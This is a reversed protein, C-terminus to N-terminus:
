RTPQLLDFAAAIVEEATIQMLGKETAAHRTHDKKSSAHRLVRSATGYPGNRAPDTPGFLAVVPRELAAALHLPGTDGAIVLSAHRTLAILQGISCPVVVAAGGSANVVANALIDGAFVANVLPVYGAQALAAAVAGYREAPWQKAGWGASPAILAFKRGEPAVRALLEDRWAESAQDAPLEIKTSTLREGVAAGLLECGQEIVHAASMPIKEGYLWRAPQERPDAPGAFKGGGAMWGIMSSRISGQMDVCLDFQEGRLQRRVAAISRLTELSIPRRKWQRTPVAYCRDVLPMAAGRQSTASSQLLDRWCPDIAWGIFWDPHRQRLAAVAPMAHLVDGMAGIRIILVRPPRDRSSSILPLRNM